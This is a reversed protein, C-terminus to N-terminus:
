ALRVSGDASVAFEDSVRTTESAIVPVLRRNDNGTRDRFIMFDTEPAM